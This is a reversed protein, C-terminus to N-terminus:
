DFSHVWKLGAFRERAEFQDNFFLIVRQINHEELAFVGFGFLNLGRLVKNQFLLFLSFYQEETFKNRKSLLNFLEGGPCFELVFFLKRDNQFSGFMKVIFPHSAEMLVNRETIIRETQKKKEVHTKKLIKMAYIKGSDKKKVLVVKAYSGKGVVSLM